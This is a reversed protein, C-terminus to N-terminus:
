RRFEIRLRIRSSQAACDSQSRFHGARALAQSAAQATRYRRLFLPLREVPEPSYAVADQLEALAAQLSSEDNAHVTMLAQGAEVFDGVSAHVEIGVAHDIADEKTARGAGLALTAWGVKDALISAVFGLERAPFNYRLNAQPLQSLDDIQAVDGGHAAVM